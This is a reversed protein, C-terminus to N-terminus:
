NMQSLLQHLAEGKASNVPFVLKASVEGDPYNLIEIKAHHLEMIYKSVAVEIGPWQWKRPNGSKIYEKVNEVSSREEEICIHKIELEIHDVNELLLIHITSYDPSQKVSWQLFIKLVQKIMDPNIIIESLESHDPTSLKIKKSRIEAVLDGIAIDILYSLKYPRMQDNNARTDIETVLLALDLLDKTKKSADGITDLILNNDKTCEAERLIETFGMIASIPSRLEQIIIKLLDDKM